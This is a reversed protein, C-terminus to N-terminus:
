TLVSKYLYPSIMFINKIRKACCLLDIRAVRSKKHDNGTNTVDFTKAIQIERKDDSFSINKECKELIDALPDKLKFKIEDNERKTMKTSLPM